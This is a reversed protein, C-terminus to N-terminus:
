PLLNGLELEKALKVIKQFSRQDGSGCVWERTFSTWDIQLKQIDIKCHVFDLKIDYFSCFLQFGASNIAILCMTVALQSQLKLHFPLTRVRYLNKCLKVRKSFSPLTQLLFPQKFQLLVYVNYLIKCVKELKSRFTRVIYTCFAYNRLGPFLKYFAKCLKTEILVTLEVTIQM